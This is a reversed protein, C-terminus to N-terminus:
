KKRNYVTLSDEFFNTRYVYQKVLSDWVYQANNSAKHYHTSIHGHSELATLYLMKGFGKGRYRRIINSVTIYNKKTIVNVTIYGVRSNNIYLCHEVSSLKDKDYFKEVKVDLVM